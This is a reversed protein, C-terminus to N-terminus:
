EKKTLTLLFVISLIMAFGILDLAAFSTGLFAVSLVTAAVPESTAVLSARSPGVLKVSVAYLGFAAVSGIVVIVFMALLMEGNWHVEYQWPRTLLSLAAGGFLFSWAMVVQTSYRRYLGEPLISNLMM